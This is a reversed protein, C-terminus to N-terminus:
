HKGDGTDGFLSAEFNEEPYIILQPSGKMIVKREEALYIVEDSQSFNEGRKIKVEGKAIAKTIAKSDPNLYAFLKKSTVEGKADKIKVDENFTAMNKEYDIDLPGECTIITTGNYMEIRVDERFRAKKLEPEGTVGRGWLTIEEREIKVRGDALIVNTKSDWDMTEASVRAGDSSNIVVNKVFYIKNTMKDYTGEDATLELTNKRGYTIASIDQLKVIHDIVNASRGKIEWRKAGQETYATLDFQLVKQDATEEESSPARPSLEVSEEQGCGSFVLIAIFLTLIKPM